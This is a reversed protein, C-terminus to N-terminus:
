KRTLVRNVAEKWGDLLQVRKADEMHPEFVTDTSRLSLLYATDKFFGSLLGALYAAGLATTQQNDPRHVPRQIIDSQFQMCLDNGSVGGDVNLFDIKFGADLEMADLLDYLQYAVAELSARSIHGARVGRTIGLIAGRADDDWYPAGLGTFAPVIYVGGNDEVEMALAESKYSKDFFRLGDRVWQILTACHYVSGELAYEVGNYGPASAAITTVLGHTSKMAKSGTNMLLFAGTGYTCKAQREDFCCQGFLAAQQDGVLSKIPVGQLPGEAVTGYDYASPHVEPLLSTPIGWLQLLEEDWELTHINFLMTRSANTYDTAHVAGGTLKYLIWCDVTGFALKGAKALDWAGDTNDLIWRIKSACFYADPSLGTKASVMEAIREDSCVQEVLDASRRCQWVIADAIPEGTDRHWIITTERQNAIGIADIDSASLHRAKVINKLAKYQSNWIDEPNHSVWGPQPYIQPFKIQSAKVVNGLRDILMARSSTTGQDLAILYAKNEQKEAM